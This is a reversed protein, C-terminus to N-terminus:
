FYYSDGSGYSSPIEDGNIRAVVGDDYERINIRRPGDLNFRLYDMSDGGFYGWWGDELHSEYRLGGQLDQAIDADTEFDGVSIGARFSQTGSGGDLETILEHDYAASASGIVAIGSTAVAVKSAKSLVSRRSESKM